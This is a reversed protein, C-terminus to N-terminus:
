RNYTGRGKWVSAGVPLLPIHGHQGGDRGRGSVRGKEGVGAWSVESGGAELDDLGPARLHAGRGLLVLGLQFCVSFIILEQCGM